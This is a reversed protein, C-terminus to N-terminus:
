RSTEVNEPRLHTISFKRLRFMADFGGQFAVGGHDLTQGGIPEGMLPDVVDVLKREDLWIQIREGRVELRFHNGNVPDLKADTGSALKREGDNRNDGYGVATHCYSNYYANLSWNGDGEFGINYGSFGNENWSEKRDAIHFFIGAGHWTLSYPNLAPDVGPVVLDAEIRYDRWAPDGIHTILEPGRGQGEHGYDFGPRARPLSALGDGDRVEFLTRWAQWKVGGFPIEEPAVPPPAVTKETPRNNAAKLATRTPEPLADWVAQPCFAGGGLVGASHRGIPTLVDLQLNGDFIWIRDASEIYAFWGEHKLFGPLSITENQGGALRTVSLTLPLALLSGTIRAIEIQNGAADIRYAGVRRLFGTAPRIKADPFDRVEVTTRHGPALAVHRFEVWHYPRRQLRFAQVQSMDSSPIAALGHAIGNNAQVPGAHLERTSGDAMLLTLRSEWEEKRSFRYSITSDGASSVLCDIGAIWNQADPGPGISAYASRQEAGNPLVANTFPKLTIANEWEGDAVGAELDFEKTGPILSLDQITELYDPSSSNTYSGQFIATNGGYSRAVVSSALKADSRARFVLQLGDRGEASFSSGGNDRPFAAPEPSGDPRWRAADGLPLPALMVLELTGGPYRATFPPGSLPRAPTTITTSTPEPKAASLQWWLLGLLVSGLACLIGAGLVIWLTRKWNRPATPASASTVSTPPSPAPVPPPPADSPALATLTQVQTRFEGATQYRLAPSKELARLVIEDLRVDIQVKLSPAVVDKAPREGTLMEYLVVGLAYIDARHDVAPTATPTDGSSFYGIPNSQGIEGSQEPAMYPPTGAREGAGGSGVLAAIGFDAIKVRGERDLLLNEPKIDRHVVGKEHAYQLAECIPPIIALAQAPALRGDRILDRLNVGDVFE